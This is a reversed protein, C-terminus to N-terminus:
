LLRDVKASVTRRHFWWDAVHPCACAALASLLELPTSHCLLFGGLRATLCTPRRRLEIEGQFVRQQKV